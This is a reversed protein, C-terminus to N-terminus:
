EPARYKLAGVRGMYDVKVRGARSPPWVVYTVKAEILAKPIAGYVNSDVSWFGEDGEVWVKGGEVRVMEGGMGGGAVPRTVVVDGELAVVRKVAVREPDMPSRYLVVQGRQLNATAHHRQALIIDRSLTPSMSRGRISHLSYLHNTVFILMPLSLLLPPIPSLLPHLPPM